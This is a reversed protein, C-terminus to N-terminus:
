EEPRRDYDRWAGIDRLRRTKRADQTASRGLADLLQNAMEAAIHDRIAGQGPRPEGAMFREIQDRDIGADEFAILIRRM